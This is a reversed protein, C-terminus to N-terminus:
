GMRYKKENERVGKLESKRKKLADRLISNALNTMTTGEKKAKLYLERVIEEKIKPSYM